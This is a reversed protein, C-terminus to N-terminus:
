GFWGFTRRGSPLNTVIHLHWPFCIIETFYKTIVVFKISVLQEQLQGCFRLSMIRAFLFLHKVHFMDVSFDTAELYRYILQTPKHLSSNPLLM